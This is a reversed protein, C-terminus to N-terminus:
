DNFNLVDHQSCLYVPLHLSGLLGICTFLTVPTINGTAPTTVSDVPIGDEPKVLQILSTNVSKAV